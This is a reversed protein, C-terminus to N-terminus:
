FLFPPSIPLTILHNESPFLMGRSLSLFGVIEPSGLLELTMLNKKQEDRMGVNMLMYFKDEGASSHRGGDM